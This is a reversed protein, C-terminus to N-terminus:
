SIRKSARHLADRRGLRSAAEDAGAADHHGQCNGSQSCHASQQEMLRMGKQREIM